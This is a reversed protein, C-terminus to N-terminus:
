KQMGSPIKIITKNNVRGIEELKGGSCVIIVECGRELAERTASITEETNGSYSISLVLWEKKIFSPLNYGKIIEVPIDIDDKILAKIIDGAFGSGGMGSFAIGKFSKEKIKRLDTKAAIEKANLMQIYFAEETELMGEKDIEKIKDLNDLVNM